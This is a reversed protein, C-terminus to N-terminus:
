RPLTRCDPPPCRSPSINRPSTALVDSASPSPLNESVTSAELSAAIGAENVAVSVDASPAVESNLWGTASDSHAAARHERGLADDAEGFPGHLREIEEALLPADDAHRAVRHPRRPHAPLLRPHRREDGGVKLFDERELRVENEGEGVQL